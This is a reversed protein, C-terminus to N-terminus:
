NKLVNGDSNSGLERALQRLMTERGRIECM